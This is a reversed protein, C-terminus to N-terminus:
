GPVRVTSSVIGVGPVVSSTTPGSAYLLVHWFAGVLAVLVM